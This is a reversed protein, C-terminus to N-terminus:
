QEILEQLRAHLAADAAKNDRSGWVAIELVRQSVSRSGALAAALRSSTNERMNSAVGRTGDEWACYYVHLPLGRDEFEYARFPLILKGVSLDIVGRDTRLNLGTAPLCIEPRHSKAFQVRVRDVLSKAPGWRFYFVQWASGDTEGWSMARGENFNLETRVRHSLEVERLHPKNAPWRVQWNSLQPDAQERWEFWAATGGEVAAL